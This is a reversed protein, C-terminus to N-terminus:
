TNVGSSKKVHISNIFAMVLEKTKATNCGTFYNGYINVSFRNNFIANFITITGSM